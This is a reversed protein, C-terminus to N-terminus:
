ADFTDDDAAQREAIAKFVLYAGFGIVALPWWEEIWDLSMGFRTHLFLVIGTAVLLGGGLISGRFGLEQFEAPLEIEAGGALAQNYLAARRGADVLNYLWFFALFLSALPVLPGLANAALLTILVAVAIAHIFGRKYYGVYVQGLGPMVSLVVALFPSKRRPDNAAPAAAPAAAPPPPAQTPPQPTLQEAPQNM